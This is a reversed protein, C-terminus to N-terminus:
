FIKGKVKEAIQDIQDNTLEPAKVLEKLGIDIKQNDIWKFQKLAFISGTVTASNHLGLEYKHEIVTKARKIIIEFQETKEMYKDLAQRDCFGCFLTLGTITLPKDNNLCFNFYENMKTELEEPNNFKPPRGHKLKGLLWPNYTLKVGKKQAAAKTIAM